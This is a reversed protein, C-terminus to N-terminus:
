CSFLGLIMFLVVFFIVADLPFTEVRDRKSLYVKGGDPKSIANTDRDFSGIYTTKNRDPDTVKIFDMFV